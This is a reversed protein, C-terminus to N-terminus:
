PPEEAASTEQTQAEECLGHRSQALVYAAGTAKGQPRRTERVDPPKAIGFRRARAFGHLTLHRESSSLPGSRTIHRKPERAQIASAAPCKTPM